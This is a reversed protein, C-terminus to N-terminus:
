LHKIAAKAIKDERQIWRDKHNKIRFIQLRRRRDRLINHFYKSNCDGEKFWSSQTKQILLSDQLGLWRIYEAYGKNLKARDHKTNSNLDMDEMILIKAEWLNVQENIDGMTERSWMSLRKSLLKLKSQLRCMANGSINTNWEQQVM